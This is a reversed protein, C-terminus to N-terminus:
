GLHRLLAVASGADLGEVRYGAPTILVLPVQEAARPKQMRVRVVRSRMSREGRSWRHLASTSLGVAGAIESWRRGRSRERQVYDMVAKRVPDPIRQTRGRAGMSDIAEKARQELADM